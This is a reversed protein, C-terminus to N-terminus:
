RMGEKGEEEKEFLWVITIEDEGQFIMVPHESEVSEVVVRPSPPATVFPLALLLIIVIATGWALTKRPRFPYFLNKFEWWMQEMLAPTELREVVGEWIRALPADVVGAEVAEQLHSRLVTFEELERQCRRCGKVHREVFIRKKPRLEEDVYKELMSAVHSCDQM